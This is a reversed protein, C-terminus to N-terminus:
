RRERQPLLDAGSAGEVTAKETAFNVSAKQVVGELDKLGQEVRVVCATCTMGSINLTAKDSLKMAGKKIAKRVIDMGPTKAEDFDAEGKRGEHFLDVDAFEYKVICDDL